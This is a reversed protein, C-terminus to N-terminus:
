GGRPEAVLIAAEGNRLRVSRAAPGLSGDAAVPRYLGPLAHTSASEDGFRGGGNPRVLVLGKSFRRAFVDGTTIVGETLELDDFWATGTAGYMRLNIRGRMGDGTVLIQRYLKWDRTGEVAISSTDAQLGPFEYAYVNAGPAGEVNETKIWASLTYHTHPKLTVYQSTINNIATSNSRIRVSWQGSHQAQADLALPEAVRWEAPKGSPTSSEFGGNALLNKAEPLTRHDQRSFLYYEGLPQGIDQEIAKFWLQEVKRYPHSGFGFYSYDGHALWYSGLGYLCDRPRDVGEVKVGFEALQPDYIPNYQLWQIKGGRDLERAQDIARRWRDETQGIHLWGEDQLGEIVMPRAHWGNGAIVTKPLRLKMRALLLQLDTLWRDADRAPYEVIPRRGAAPPTPALTDFYIGDYGEAMQPGYVEAMFAGYVPDGVNMVYDDAPPGWYYIPIRADRRRRATAQRNVARGREADDVLGDGNPDNRPDWGPCIRTQLPRSALEAGAHLTVPTDVAYHCFCDEFDHGRRRCLEALDVAKKSPVVLTCVLAYQMAMIDARGRKAEKRFCLDIKDKAWAPSGGFNVFIRISPLYHPMPQPDVTFREVTSETGDGGPRQVRVKWYYTKGRVLGSGAFEVLPLRTRAQIQWLPRDFGQPSEAVSLQFSEQDSTEWYFTPCPRTLRAPSPQWDCRLNSVSTTVQFAPLFMALLLIPHM